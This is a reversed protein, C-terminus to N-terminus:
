LNDSKEATKPGARLEKDLFFFVQTPCSSPPLSHTHDLQIVVLRGDEGDRFRPFATPTADCLRTMSPSMPLYIM